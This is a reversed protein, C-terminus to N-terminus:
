PVAVWHPLRRCELHHCGKLTKCVESEVVRGKPVVAIYQHPELYTLTIIVVTGPKPCVLWLGTHHTFAGGFLHWRLPPKLETWDKNRSMM